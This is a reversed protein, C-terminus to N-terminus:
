CMWHFLPHSPPNFHCGTVHGSATQHQWSSCRDRRKGRDEKSLPSLETPASKLFWALGGVGGWFLGFCYRYFKPDHQFLTLLICGREHSRSWVFARLLPRKEESSHRVNWSKGEARIVRSLDKKLRYNVHWPQWWVQALCMCYKM